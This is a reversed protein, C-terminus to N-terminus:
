RLRAEAPPVITVEARGPRDLVAQVTAEIVVTPPEPITDPATYVGESTISGRPPDGLITWSVGDADTGNLLADFDLSEGTPLEAIEPVVRVEPSTDGPTGTHEDCAAFVAVVVGVVVPLARSGAHIRRM